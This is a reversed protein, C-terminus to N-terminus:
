RIAACRPRPLAHVQPDGTVQLERCRKRDRKPPAAGVLKDVEGRNLPALEPLRALLV